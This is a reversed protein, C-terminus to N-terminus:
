PDTRPGSRLVMPQLTGPAPCSPAPARFLGGWERLSRRPSAAPRRSERFLRALAVAQASSRHLEQVRAAGARGMRALTEVPADLAEGMARALSEVSGPPVLWGSEGPRVLEPIAAVYTSIVPRGLAMAEILAVPLGEAFSPLVMARADIVADRVGNNSLWGALRVTAGLGHRDILAEIAGRLPGDGVLVIEFDHCVARLRAAAEVLILHGKQEALRGV